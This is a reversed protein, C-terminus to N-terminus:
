PTASTDMQSDAVTTATVRHIIKHSAFIRGISLIVDLSVEPTDQQIPCYNIMLLVTRSLDFQLLFAMEM